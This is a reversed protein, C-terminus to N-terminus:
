TRVVTCLPEACSPIIYSKGGIRSQKIHRKIDFWPPLAVNAPTDSTKLYGPSGSFAATGYPLLEPSRRGTKKRHVHM